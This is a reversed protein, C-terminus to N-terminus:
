QWLATQNPSKRQQFGWSKGGPTGAAAPQVSPLHGPHQPQVCCARIALSPQALLLQERGQPVGRELARWPLQDWHGPCACVAPACLFLGPSPCFELLAAWPPNTIMCFHHHDKRGRGTDEPPSSDSLALLSCWCCRGSWEKCSSKTGLSVWVTLSLDSSELWM